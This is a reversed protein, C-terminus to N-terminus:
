QELSKLAKIKEMLEEALRDYDARSLKRRDPNVLYPKGVVINYRHFLKKNRPIYVPIVPVSMHDAIQVAGRKAEADDTKVRTGEPFIAVKEGAKLYRMATKVAGIDRIGRDVPFAGIARIVSAVVPIRFLEAKAMYHLHVDIGLALCILIPDLNSSHNACFVAPGPPINEIGVGVLKFFPFFVVQFFRYLRRFARYERNM